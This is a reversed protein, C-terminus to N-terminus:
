KVTTQYRVGPARHKGASPQLGGAVNSSPLPQRGKALSLDRFVLDEGSDIVVGGEEGPSLCKHDNNQLEIDNKLQVTFCFPGNDVNSVFVERKSGDKLNSSYEGAAAFLTLCVQSKILV